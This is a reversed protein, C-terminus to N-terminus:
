EISDIITPYHFTFNKDDWDIYTAQMMYTKQPIWFLLEWTGLFKVHEM